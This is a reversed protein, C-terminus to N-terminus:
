NPLKIDIWDSVDCRGFETNGTAVLTGDMKLGVAHNRGATMFVIDSWKSTNYWSRETGTCVTTGDEKIGYTCYPDWGSNSISQIQSWAEVNCQGNENWGTAVVSGDSKLGFTACTGTVIQEVDTWSDVNCQGYKNNGVAVVTGDAKLGVIHGYASVAVIDSWASVDYVGDATIVTGDMKLGVTGDGTISVVDQWSELITRVDAESNWGGAAVVTGDSKLGVSSTAGAALAVIDSWDGVDCQEQGQEMSFVERRHASGVHRINQGAVAVTGDNKIGLTHYNGV